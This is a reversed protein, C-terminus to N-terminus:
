REPSTRELRAKKMIKNGSLELNKGWKKRAYALAVQKASESSASFLVDEGNDRIRAGDQLSFVVTGKRDIHHQFETVGLQNQHLVQEM